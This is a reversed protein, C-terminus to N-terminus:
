GQATSRASGQARLAISLGLLRELHKATYVGAFGGGLVLVGAGERSAAKILYGQEGLRSWRPDDGAVQDM